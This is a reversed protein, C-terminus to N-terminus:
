FSKGAHFIGNLSEGGGSEIECVCPRKEKRERERRMEEGKRERM